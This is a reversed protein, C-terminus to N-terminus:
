RVGDFRAAYEQLRRTLQLAADPELEPDKSAHDAELLLQAIVAADSRLKPAAARALTEDDSSLPVGGSSAIMRRLRLRAANVAAQRAEARKYLGGLMEVFEMPSTRPDSYPARVPGRRRSHTLLVAVFVLSAQFAIWPLPTGVAYSWLSRKFGQYHEDFVVARQGPAGVINLLFRLNGANALHGNSFPTIESVWVARGSGSSAVAVAADQASAGYLPVYADELIARSRESAMTIEEAGLTLPSPILRKLADVREDGFPSITDAPVTLGLAYGGNAGVAVVAGGEDIFARLRRRDQESPPEAGSLFLTTRSPQARLATIPEVSREVQYGLEVLTLYAAKLGRPGASYSSTGADVPNPEPAVFASVTGLVAIAVGLVIVITVDNLRRVPM